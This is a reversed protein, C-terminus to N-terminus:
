IILLLFITLVLIIASASILLIPNFSTSILASKEQIDTANEESMGQYLSSAANRLVKKYSNVNERGSLEEHKRKENLYDCYYTDKGEFFVSYFYEKDFNEINIVSFINDFNDIFWNTDVYSFDRFTTGMSLVTGIMIKSLSVINEKKEKEYNDPIDMNKFSLEGIQIQNSDLNKVILGNNHIEKLQSSLSDFLSAIDVNEYMVYNKLNM